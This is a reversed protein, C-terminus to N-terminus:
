GTMGDGMRTELAGLWIASSISRIACREINLWVDPKLIQIYQTALWVLGAIPASGSYRNDKKDGIELSKYILM